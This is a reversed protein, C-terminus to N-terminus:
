RLLHVKVQVVEGLGDLGVQAMRGGAGPDVLPQRGVVVPVQRLMLEPGDLPMQGAARGTLSLVILDHSEDLADPLLHGRGLHAGRRGRLEGRADHRPDVRIFV